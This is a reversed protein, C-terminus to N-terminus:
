SSVARAADQVQQEFASLALDRGRDLRGIEGGIRYRGEPVRPPRTWAAGAALVALSAQVRGLVDWVDGTPVAPVARVGRSLRIM